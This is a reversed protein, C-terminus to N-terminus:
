PLGRLSRGRRADVYISTYITRCVMRYSLRCMYSHIHSTELPADFNFELDEVAIVLPRYSEWDNSQLVELDVSEVDVNLFDIERHAPLYKELISKLTFSQIELEKEVEVHQGRIINQKFEPSITNSSARDGFMFYRVLGETKSIAVNLNVDGPRLCNYCAITAPNCDINIGSWGRDFLLKTNSDVLPHYAGVDVYFGDDKDMFLYALMQDEGWSSFTIKKGDVHTASGLQQVKESEQRHEELESRLIEIDHQLAGHELLLQDRQNVLNRIHPFRKVAKKFWSLPSPSRM